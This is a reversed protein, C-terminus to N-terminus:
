PSYPFDEYSVTWTSTRELEPSRWVAAAEEWSSAEWASAAARKGAAREAEKIKKLQASVEAAVKEDTPAPAANWPQEAPLWEAPPEAPEEPASSAGGFLACAARQRRSAAYGLLACCLAVFPCTQASAMPEATPKGLLPVRAPVVGYLCAHRNAYWTQFKTPQKLRAAARPADHVLPSTAMPPFPLTATWAMAVSLYLLFMM